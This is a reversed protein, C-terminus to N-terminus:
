LCLLRNIRRDDPPPQHRQNRVAVTGRERVSQRRHREIRTGAVPIRVILLHQGSHDLRDPLHHLGPESRHRRPLLELQLHTALITTLDVGGIQRLGPVPHQPRGLRQQGLVGGRAPLPERRGTPVRIRQPPGRQEGILQDPEVEKEIHVSGIWRIHGHSLAEGQILRCVAMAHTRPQQVAASPDNAESRAETLLDMRICPYVSIRFYPFVSIRLLPCASTPSMSTMVVSFWLPPEEFIVDAAKM